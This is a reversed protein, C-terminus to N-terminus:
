AHMGTSGGSPKVRSFMKGTPITHGSANVVVTDDPAIVGDRAMAFLGAFAM